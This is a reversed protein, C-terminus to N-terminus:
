QQLRLAGQVPPGVVTVQRHAVPGLEGVVGLGSHIGIALALGAGLAPPHLTPHQALRQQLALAALVARRAHDEQAVPGGFVATVGEPAQQILTGGYAQLVEHALIVVTQMVRYLGEAGLGAALVAAARLGGCLVSVLKYEGDGPAM